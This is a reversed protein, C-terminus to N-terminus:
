LSAAVDSTTLAFDIGQQALDSPAKPCKMAVSQIANNQEPSGSELFAGVVKDEHVWYAGPLAPNGHTFPVCEGNVDGYFKWSYNFFRSYFYPLYDYPTDYKSDLMAHVAHAAMKRANDVHELRCIKDACRKLPFAAVDGVAFVNQISTELRANVRIGGNTSMSVQDQVLETNPVAGIGIVVLDAELVKGSKLTIKSRDGNEEVTDVTEHRMLEVQHEDGYVKEYFTAVPAPFLRPLVHDSPFVMTVNLGHARMAAACELGIYGGGVVVAQQGQKAEEMAGYLALGDQVNRLYFVNKLARTSGGKLERPRAGTAIILKEFEITEDKATQLMRQALDAKTVTTNMLVQIQNTKYWEDVLRDGGSGVCTHFGPLRAPSTPNLFGKSLAPREYPLYPEESVICLEGSPGGLNVYERAAYGAANGGGLIVYKFRKSTAMKSTSAAPRGGVDIM